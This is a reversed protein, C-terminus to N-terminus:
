SNMVVRLACEGESHSSGPNVYLHCYDCHLELIRKLDKLGGPIKMGSSDIDKFPISWDMPIDTENKPISIWSRFPYFDSAIVGEGTNSVHRHMDEFLLRLNKFRM